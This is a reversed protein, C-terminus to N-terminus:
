DAMSTPKGKSSSGVGERYDTPHSDDEVREWARKVKRVSKRSDVFVIDQKTLIDCEERVLKFLVNEEEISWGVGTKRSLLKFGKVFRVVWRDVLEKQDDGIIAKNNANLALNATSYCRELFLDFNEDPMKHILDGLIEQIRRHRYDRRDHDHIWDPNDAFSDSKSPRPANDCKSWDNEVEKEVFDATREMKRVILGAPKARYLTETFPHLKDKRNSM